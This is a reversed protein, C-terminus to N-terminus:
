CKWVTGIKHIFFRALLERAWEPTASLYVIHYNVGDKGCSSQTCCYEVINNMACLFKRGHEVKSHLMMECTETFLAGENSILQLFKDQSGM